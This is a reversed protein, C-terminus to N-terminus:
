LCISVIDTVAQGSESRLVLLEVRDSLVRHDEIDTFDGDLQVSFTKPTMTPQDVFIWEFSSTSQDPTYRAWVLITGASTEILRTGGVQQTGSGQAPTHVSANVEGRAFSVGSEVERRSANAWAVWYGGTRQPLMSVFDVEDNATRAVTISSAPGVDSMSIYTSRNERSRFALRPPVGFTAPDYFAMYRRSQSSSAFYKDQMFQHDTGVGTSRGRNNCEAGYIGFSYYNQGSVRPEQMRWDAWALVFSDDGHFVQPYKASISWDRYETDSAAFASDFIALQADFAGGLVQRSTTDDYKTMVAVVTEVGNTEFRFWPQDEEISYINSPGVLLAGSVDYRALRVRGTTNASMDVGGLLIDVDGASNKLAFRAAASRIEMEMEIPAFVAASTVTNQCTSPPPGTDPMMAMGGDFNGAADSGVSSADLGTSSTAADLGSSPRRNTNGNQGATRVSQTCAM